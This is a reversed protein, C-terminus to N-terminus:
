GGITFKYTPENQLRKRIATDLEKRTIKGDDWYMTFAEIDDYRENKLGLPLDKALLHNGTLTFTRPICETPSYEIYYTNLVRDIAATAPKDSDMIESVTSRYTEDTPLDAGGMQNVMQYTAQGLPCKNKAQINDISGDANMGSHYNRKATFPKIAEIARKPFWLLAELARRKNNIFEMDYTYTVFSTNYTKNFPM